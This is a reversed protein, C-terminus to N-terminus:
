ALLGGHGLGALEWKSVHYGALMPPLLKDVGNPRAPRFCGPACVIPVHGMYGLLLLCGPEVPALFCEIECGVRVLARGIVDEPGAPATTSAILVATPTINLLHKLSRTIAGEEEVSSLSVSASTGFRSLRKRTSNEFLQRARKGDVPDTYLVAVTPSRIPRAELIPGREQVFSMLIEFDTKPVVFPSSKVVAIQIGQGAWTFNRATAVVMGPRSNIQNLVEENVLVCCPETTFLKARGGPALRVEIAGCGIKSAIEMVVYDEGVEGEERETVSVESLGETELTRVDEKSIVHGKALLKKGDARLIVSSLTKGTSQKVSINLVKM